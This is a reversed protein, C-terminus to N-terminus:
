VAGAVLRAVAELGERDTDDFAAPLHSDVDLVAVLRGASVVPVVIESRARSDCAIHGPFAHVDPVVVSRRSSAAAQCVGKGPPLVICALPGQYPGVVLSGNAAPLYFGVWSVQEFTDKLLAAVSAMAAVFGPCGDLVSRAQEAVQAYAQAKGGAAPKARGGM